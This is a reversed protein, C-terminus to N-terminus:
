NKGTKEDNGKTSPNTPGGIGVYKSIRQKEYINVQKQLGQETMANKDRENRIAVNNDYMLDDINEKVTNQVFEKPNLDIGSQVAQEAVGVTYDSEIKDKHQDTFQNLSADTTAASTRERGHAIAPAYHSVEDSIMRQRVKTARNDGREIMDHADKTSIGYTSAVEKELHHYMDQEFSADKSDIRSIAKSYSEVQESRMALQGELSQQQHYSRRIDDSYSTDINNSKSFQENSAAKVVDSYSVSTNNERNLMKENGFSQDSSNSAGVSADASVSAGFGLIGKGPTSAEASTKLSADASQRWDYGYRERLQKTENVAKQLSTGFEGATGYDFTEGSSERQALNAVFSSTKDFTAQSSNSLARQDSGMLSQLNSLNEAMQSSASEKVNFKSSGGSMTMGVGSQFSTDGNSQVREMTGDAHQYSSAGSAYSQNLDTKFGNQTAVQMNGISYNDLSRNGTTVEAAASAAAGSSAGTINSALNIFGSVGGQVIAFALFPVSMQLGSAVTVIKDAYNGVTSFTTFSVIGDAIGSLTKSSYLDIFMNLVSNLAPWLQLSAVVTLYSMYKAGGGSFLMIPVMFIFSAYILGKMVTLLIPLYTSALDGAIRWSSEQQMSSRAYGYDDGIDSLSNLCMQQTILNAASESSGLYSSFALEINKELLSNINNMSRPFFKDLSTASGFETNQNKQKLSEIESLFAPKIYNEAAEKCNVLAWGKNRRMAVKRLTNANKTVLYWINGTTLLDQATYHYGIMADRMVCRKLFTHMNEAFEPTKIRWNRAEQVLRAGFIMGYDRYNTSHPLTFAQEFGGTLIDGFAEFIGVPVAFGLPLNAVLEKKKSVHDVILMETKPLLLANIVLVMAAIKILYQRHGGSSGAYAMKLGYYAVSIVSTTEILISTFTHNMIMAIGNLVYFMGDIHGYTHVVLDM